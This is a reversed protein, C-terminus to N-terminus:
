MKRSFQSKEQQGHLCPSWHKILTSLWPFLFQTGKSLLTKTLAAINRAGDMAPSHSLSDRPLWLWARKTVIGVFWCLFFIEFNHSKDDIVFVTTGSIQLLDLEFSSINARTLVIHQRLQTSKCTLSLWNSSTLHSLIDAMLRGLCISWRSAFQVLSIVSLLLASELLFQHPSQLSIWVTQFNLHNSFLAKQSQHSILTILNVIPWSYLALCQLYTHKKCVTQCFPLHRVAGFMM